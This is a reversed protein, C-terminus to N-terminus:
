IMQNVKELILKRRATLFDIFNDVNWEGDPILHARRDIDSLNKIFEAFPTDLKWLNEVATVYRINSIDNICEEYYKGKLEGKSFIHDQQPQNADSKFDFNIGNYVLNLLIFSNKGNYRIKKVLDDNM